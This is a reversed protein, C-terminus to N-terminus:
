RRDGAAGPGMLRSAAPGKVFETVADEPVLSEEAANSARATQQPSAAVGGGGSDAASGRRKEDANGAPVVDQVVFRENRRQARAVIWGNSIDVLKLALGVGDGERLISGRIAHTVSSRAAADVVNLRNSLARELEHRVAARLTGAERGLVAM